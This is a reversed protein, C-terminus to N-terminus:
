RGLAVVGLMLVFGVIVVGMWAWFMARMGRTSREDTM